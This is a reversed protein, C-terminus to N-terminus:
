KKWASQSTKTFKSIFVKMDKERRVDRFIRESRFTLPHYYLATEKRTSKNFILLM